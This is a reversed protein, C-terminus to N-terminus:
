RGPAARVDSLGLRELGLRSLPIARLTLMSEEGARGLSVVEEFHQRSAEVQGTELALLWRFAPVDAELQLRNPAHPQLLLPYVWKM